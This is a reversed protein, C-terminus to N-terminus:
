WLINFCHGKIENRAHYEIAKQVKIVREIQLVFLGHPTSTCMMCHMRTYRPLGQHVYYLADHPVHPASMRINRHAINAVAPCIYIAILLPLFIFMCFLKSSSDQSTQKTQNNWNGKYIRWSANFLISIWTRM